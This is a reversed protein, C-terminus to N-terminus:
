AEERATKGFPVNMPVLPVAPNAFPQAERHPNDAAMVDGYQKLGLWTLAHRMGSEWAAAEVARLEKPGLVKVAVTVTGKAM